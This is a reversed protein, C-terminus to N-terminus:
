AAIFAARDAEFGRISAQRPCPIGSKAVWALQSWGRMVNMQHWRMPLVTHPGGETLLPRIEGPVTYYGENKRLLGFAAVADLLMTIARLNCDLLQALAEASLSKDGLRDWIDLEACAGIICAPRFGSMLELIQPGTIPQYNPM